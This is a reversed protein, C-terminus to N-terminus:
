DFPFIFVSVVLILVKLEINPYGPLIFDLGLDEVSAGDLTLNEIALQLSETALSADEELRKKQRVLAQLQGMSKALTPDVHQLDRYGFSNEVGLMWKYFTESLPIDIM